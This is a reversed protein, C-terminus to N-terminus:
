WICTIFTYGIPSFCFGSYLHNSSHAFCLLKSKRSYWICFRIRLDTRLVIQISGLLTTTSSTYIEQIIHVLFPSFTDPLWQTVMSILDKETLPLYQLMTLLFMIFPFASMMIYFSSQAAYASVCDEKMKELFSKIWFVVFIIYRM